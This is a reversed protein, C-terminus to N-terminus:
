QFQTKQMKEKSCPKVIKNITIYPDCYRNNAFHFKLKVGPFGVKNHEYFGHTLQM